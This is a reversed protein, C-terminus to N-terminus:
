RRNLGWDYERHKLTFAADKLQEKHKPHYRALFARVEKDGGWDKEYWEFLKVVTITKAEVDIAVEGPRTLYDRTRAELSEKWNKATYAREWLRPCSISACNVVFHVRPDGSSRIKEEELANLTLEEGAVKHTAKDFFGPVKLVSEPLANALVAELAYANYANVYFPLREEPALKMADAEAVRKLYAKLNAREKTVHAYDVKEGKVAQQVIADFAAHDFGAAAAPGTSLVAMALTLLLAPRM